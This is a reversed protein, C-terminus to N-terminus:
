ATACSMNDGCGMDKQDPDCAKGKTEACTTKADDGKVTTGCDAKAVCKDKKTPPATACAYDGTCGTGKASDCTNGLQSCTVKDTGCAGKPVCTNKNDDNTACM